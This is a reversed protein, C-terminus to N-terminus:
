IFKSYILHNSLDDDGVSGSGLLLCLLQYYSPPHRPFDQTSFTMEAKMRLLIDTTMALCSSLVFQRHRSIFRCSSLMPTLEVSLYPRLRSEIVPQISSYIIGYIRTHFTYHYWLKDSCRSFSPSGVTRRFFAYQYVESLSGLRFHFGCRLSSIKDGSM